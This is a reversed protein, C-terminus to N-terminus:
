MSMIRKGKAIILFTTILIPGVFILWEDPEEITLIWKWAKFGGTISNFLVFGSVGLFLLLFNIIENKKEKDQKLNMCLGIYGCVGFLLSLLVVIDDAHFGSLINVIGFISMFLFFTSPLLALITLLINLTAKKM